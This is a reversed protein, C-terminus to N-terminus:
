GTRVASEGRRGRRNASERKRKAENGKLLRGKGRAGCVRWCVCQRAAMIYLTQKTHPPPWINEKRSFNRKDRRQLLTLPSGPGMTARSGPLLPRPPRPLSSLHIPPLLPSLYIRVPPGGITVMILSHLLSIITQTHTHKHKHM